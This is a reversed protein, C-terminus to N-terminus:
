FELFWICQLVLLVKIRRECMKPEPSNKCISKEATASVLLPSGLALNLSAIVMNPSPLEGLTLQVEVKGNEDTVHPGPPSLHGKGQVAGM